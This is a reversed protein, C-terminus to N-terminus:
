VHHHRGVPRVTSAQPGKKGAEEVFAVETGIRLRDFGEHLVSHRHFYIERGDPTQLFGYGEEPFLKTVRAHPATELAKVAGRRRRAYDELRRRASDVADRIAVHIDRYATHAGPERTVALEEGPVTLDIRVEYLNGYQHHKGAPEVVVRCGMIHDAYTDLHAAKERVLAEIAPSHGMHRFSIQLPLQMAKVELFPV